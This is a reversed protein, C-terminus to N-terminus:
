WSSSTRLLLAFRLAGKQSFVAVRLEVLDLKFDIARVPNEIDIYGDLCASMLTIQNRSRGEIFRKM